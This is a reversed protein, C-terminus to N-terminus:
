NKSKIIFGLFIMNCELDNRNIQLANSYNMKAMKCSMGIVEFGKNKYLNEIEGYNEPITNPNCIEKLDHMYGKSFIKFFKDNSDKTIVTFFPHLKDKDIRRVVGIEYHSNLIVKESELLENEITVRENQEEIQAEESNDEETATEGNVFYSIADLKDDFIKRNQELKDSLDKEIKPKIFSCILEEVNYNINNEIHKPEYIEWDILELMKKESDDISILKKDIIVLSNCCAINEILLEQLEEKKEKSNNIRKDKYYKFVKDSIESINEIEKGLKYNEIKKGRNIITTEFINPIITIKSIKEIIDVKKEEILDISKNQNETPIIKQSISQKIAKVKKISYFLFIKKMIYIIYIAFIIAYISTIYSHLPMLIYQMYLVFFTTFIIHIHNMIENLKKNINKLNAYDSNVAMGLSKCQNNQYNLHQIIKSNEPIFHIGNNESSYTQKIENSIILAGRVLLTHCPILKGEKPIEYIDKFLLLSGKIKEKQIEHQDNIRYVFVEGSKDKKQKLIFRITSYETFNMFHFLYITLGIFFVHKSYIISFVIFSFFTSLILTNEKLYEKKSNSSNRTLKSYFNIESKSKFLSIHKSLRKLFLNIEYFKKESPLLIYFIENMKFKYIFKEKLNLSGPIQSIKEMPIVEEENESNRLLIYQNNSSYESNNHDNFLIKKKISPFTKAIIFLLGFTIFNIINSLIKKISSQSTFIFNKSDDDSFNKIAPSNATNTKM